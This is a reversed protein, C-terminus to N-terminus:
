WEEEGGKFIQNLLYGCYIVSIALAALILSFPM